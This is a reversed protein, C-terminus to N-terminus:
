VGDDLHGTLVERLEERARSVRSKVTGVPCRLIEAVQEQSLGELDHLIIATRLKESLSDIARRLATKAETRALMKDPNVAPDTATPEFGVEQYKEDDLSDVRSNPRKRILDIASNIAIRYLWTYFAAGGHYTRLNVYAKVFTEQALDAADEPSHVYGLIASYIRDQYRCVLIGFVDPDGNRVREIIAEDSLSDMVRDRAAYAFPIVAHRTWSLARM